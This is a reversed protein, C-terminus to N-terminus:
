QFDEQTSLLNSVPTFLHPFSSTPQLPRDPIYQVDRSMRKAHFLDVKMARYRSTPRSRMAGAHIIRKKSPRFLRFRRSTWQLNPYHLDPNPGAYGSFLSRPKDGPPGAYDPSFRHREVRGNDTEPARSPIRAMSRASPVYPRVAGILAGRYMSRIGWSRVGLVSLVWSKM